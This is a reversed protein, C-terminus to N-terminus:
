VFPSQDIPVGHNMVISTPIPFALLSILSLTLSFADNSLLCRTLTLHGYPPRKIGELLLRGIAVGEMGIGIAELLLRGIAAGELHLIKCFGIAIAAPHSLM